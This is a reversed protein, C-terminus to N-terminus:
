LEREGSVFLRRAYPNSDILGIEALRDAARELVRRYRICEGQSEELQRELEDVTSEKM